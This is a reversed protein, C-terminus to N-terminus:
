MTEIERLTNLDLAPTAGDQMAVYAGHANARRQLQSDPLGELFGRLFSRAGRLRLADHGDDPCWDLDGPVSLRWPGPAHHSTYVM